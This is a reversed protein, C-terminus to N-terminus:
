EGEYETKYFRAEKLDCEGKGPIFVGVDKGDETGDNMIMNCAYFSRKSIWYRITRKM